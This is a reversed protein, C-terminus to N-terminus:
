FFTLQLVCHTCCDQILAFFERASMRTVAKEVYPVKRRREREQRRRPSDKDKKDSDGEEDDENESRRTTWGRNPWM